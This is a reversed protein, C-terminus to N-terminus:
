NEISKFQINYQSRGVQEECAKLSEQIRKIAESPEIPIDEIGQHNLISVVKQITLSEIDRAPQYSVENAANLAVEVLIEAQTLQFLVDRVLRIPIELHHAIQTATYPTKAKSFNVVCLHTIRLAILRKFYHSAKLCDPELEYTEVNQEAFSVEAGFLVVLWSVQLWALFLPLAAFSGYIAGYKAALIQASFYLFQIVQYLTGAIIGGLFASKFQVKTNPIFIYIFTFLLWLFVYPLFKLAFNVAPALNGLISIKEMILGLQTTILVTMSSSMILLIPCILMMSLYDSFKRGFSRSKKIGWIENFSKEINGLVSIVTWFLLGVGIGAILGGKTNDLFSRAFTTLRQAVDEQGAMNEFLIKELVNEFGFGKAIGFAMAVLPVISMLTSYTLASARLLCKDEDFGRWALVFIRLQRLLLSRQKSLKRSKIRWIDTTLFNFFKSLISVRM